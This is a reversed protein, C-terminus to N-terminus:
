LFCAKDFPALSLPFGRNPFGERRGTTYLITLWFSLYFNTKTFFFDNIENNM